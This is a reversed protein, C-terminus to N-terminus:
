THDGRKAPAHLLGCMVHLICMKSKWEKDHLSIKGIEEKHKDNQKAWM